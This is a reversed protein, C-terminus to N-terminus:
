REAGCESNTTQETFISVPGKFTEKATQIIAHKTLLPRQLCVALPLPREQHSRAPLGPEQLAPKKGESSQSSHNRWHQNGTPHLKRWCKEVQKELKQKPCHHYLRSGCHLGTGFSWNSNEM